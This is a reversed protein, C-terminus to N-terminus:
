IAEEFQDARQERSMGPRLGVKKLGEQLDAILEPYDKLADQLVKPVPPHETFPPM